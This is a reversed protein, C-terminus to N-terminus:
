FGFGRPSVLWGTSGSDYPPPEPEPRTLAYTALAGGAVVVVAGTWFWWRKTIPTREEILTARLRSEEGANVSVRAEYTEYGRKSVSVGYSGAPRLVDVPAPGMDAGDVVVIAGRVNSSVRLTAPLESLALALEGSSGPAFSRNVVADTYGKRSLTIVHAGPDLLLRFRAAPPMRGPGPAELGAVLVPVGGASGAARLPRGDVAIAAGGPTITVSVRAILRDIEAVFARAESVLSPALAAESGGSQGLAREFGARARTYRGLARECAAINFTTTAHPRLAASQEFASLAEAWQALKVREVGARYLERARLIKPDESPAPESPQEVASPAAASPAQALAPYARLVLAVLLWRCRLFV